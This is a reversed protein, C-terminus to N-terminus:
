LFCLGGCGVCGKTQQQWACFCFGSWFTLVLITESARSGIRVKHYIVGLRSHALAESELCKEKALLVGRRYFDIITWIMDMDPQEEDQMVCPRAPPRATM